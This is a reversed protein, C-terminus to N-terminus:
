YMMEVRSSQTVRKTIKPGLLSLRNNEIVLDFSLKDGVNAQVILQKPILLLYSQHKLRLSTAEEQSLLFSSIKALIKL